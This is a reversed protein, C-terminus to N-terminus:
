TLTALWLVANDTLRDVGLVNGGRATGHETSSPRCHSSCASPASTATPRSHSCIKWLSITRQYQTSSSVRTTGSHSRIGSTLTVQRNINLQPHQWVWPKHPLAGLLVAAIMVM